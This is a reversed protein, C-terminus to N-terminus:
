FGFDSPFRNSYIEDFEFILNDQLQKYFSSAVCKKINSINPANWKESDAQFFSIKTFFIQGTEICCFFWFHFEEIKPLKWYFFGFTMM